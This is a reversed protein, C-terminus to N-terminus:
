VPEIPRGLLRAILGLRFTIEAWRGDGESGADLPYTPWAYGNTTQPIAFGKHPHWVGNRDRDDLFREYLKLWNEHRRLYGLRALMEMWMLAFPVDSDVVNRHPLLDGLVLHPQM